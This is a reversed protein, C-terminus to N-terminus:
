FFAKVNGVNRTRLMKRPRNLMRFAYPFAAQWRYFLRHMPRSVMNALAKRDFPRIPFPGSKGPV